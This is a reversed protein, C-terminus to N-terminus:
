FLPEFKDPLHFDPKEQPDLLLSWYTKTVGEGLIAFANGLISAPDGNWGLSGLRLKMQASWADSGKQWARYQLGSRFDKNFRKRPEFIELEFYQGLPSVQFELYRSPELQLFVEVVDWDWLGWQSVNAPFAPNAHIPSRTVQFLATFEDGRLSFDVEVLPMAIPKVQSNVPNVLRLQNM